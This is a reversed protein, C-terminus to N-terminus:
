AAWMAATQEGTHIWVTAANGDITVRSSGETIDTLLGYAHAVHEFRGTVVASVNSLQVGVAGFPVIRVTGAVIHLVNHGNPVGISRGFPPVTEVEPVSIAGVIYM